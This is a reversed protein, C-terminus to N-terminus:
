ECVIRPNFDPEVNSRYYDSRLMHDYCDKVERCKVDKSFIEQMWVSPKAETIKCIKDYPDAQDEDDIVNGFNLNAKDDRVETKGCGSIIIMVALTLSILLTITRM